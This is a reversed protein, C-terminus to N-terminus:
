NSSRLRLHVANSETPSLRSRSLILDESRLKAAAFNGDEREPYNQDSQKPSESGEIGVATRGRCALM